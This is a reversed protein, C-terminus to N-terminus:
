EVIQRFSKLAFRNVVIKPLMIAQEIVIVARGCVWSTVRARSMGAGDIL